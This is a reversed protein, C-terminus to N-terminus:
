GSGFISELLLRILTSFLGTYLLIIFIFVLLAVLLAATGQIASSIAHVFGQRGVPSAPPAASAPGAVLEYVVTLTVQDGERGWSQSVPAYGNSRASLADAFALQLCAAETPGRLITQVQPSKSGM